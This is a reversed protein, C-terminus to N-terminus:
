VMDEFAVAVHAKFLELPLSEIVTRSLRNWHRFVREIFNKKDINWRFSGLM